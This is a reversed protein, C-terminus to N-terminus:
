QHNRYLVSKVNTTLLLIIFFKVDNKRLKKKILMQDSQKHLYATKDDQQTQIINNM